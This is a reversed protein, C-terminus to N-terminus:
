SGGTVGMRNRNVFPLKELYDAAAMCDAYDIEGWGGTITDACTERRGTGGRPNTYFVVYGKTALWLMEHYYSFGYQM